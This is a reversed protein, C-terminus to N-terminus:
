LRVSLQPPDAAMDSVSGLLSKMAPKVYGKNGSEICTVQVWTVLTGARLFRSPGQNVESSMYESRSHCWETVSHSGALCTWGRWRVELHSLWLAWAPISAAPESDRWVLLGPSCSCCGWVLAAPLTKDSIDGMHKKREQLCLKQSLQTRPIM